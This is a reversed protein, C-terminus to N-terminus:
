KSFVRQANKVFEQRLREASKAMFPNEPIGYTHNWKGDKWYWWGNPDKGQGMGFNGWNNMGLEYRNDHYPDSGKNYTTGTGFELWYVAGGAEIIGVNGERYGRISNITEGTDIHELFNCAYEEGEVCMVDILEELRKLIRRKYAKLEGIATSIGDNDLTVTITTSKM